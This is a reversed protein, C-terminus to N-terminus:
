CIMALAVLIITFGIALLRFFQQIDISLATVDTWNMLAGM